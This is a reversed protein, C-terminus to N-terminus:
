REKKLFIINSIKINIKSHKRMTTNANIIRKYKKKEKKKENKLDEHKKPKVYTRGM